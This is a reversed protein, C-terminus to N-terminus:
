RNKSGFSELPRVVGEKERSIREGEFRFFEEEEERSLEVPKAPSLAKEEVARDRWNSAVRELAILRTEEQLYVRYEFLDIPLNGLYGIRKEMAPQFGPGILVGRPPLRPDPLEAAFLRQFLEISSEFWHYHDLLRDLIRNDPGIKTEILVFRGEADLGLLDIPDGCPTPQRVDLIRMGKELCEPSEQIHSLLQDARELEVRVLPKSM